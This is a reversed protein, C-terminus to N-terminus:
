PEGVGLLASGLNELVIERGRDDGLHSATVLTEELIERARRFDGQTLAAYGRNTAVALLTHEDGIERALDASREYSSAAAESDGGEAVVIGLDNLAVAEAQKDELERAISLREEVYRRMGDWDAESHACIFAAYLVKLRLRRDADESRALAHEALQRGETVLGTFEWFRFLSGVLRLECSPETSESFVQIATRLNDTEARLRRLRSEDVGGLPRPEVEEALAVFFEGHRQRTEEAEGREELREGAFERITALMWYRLGLESDRRRLLSKDLLSQLTDPDAGAAEEAAEYSCGGAFVSLSRFLRQEEPNLLDYSWEITARLTQQRPDSDRGGKLLDLRRSLREVLQQPSFLVTRAAALELALPLYDLRSCLESVEGNGTFGPTLARARALFLEVADREELTPVPYVQEGQLQLRERSTVFLLPGSIALLAALESAVEPLLHETNDLLLLVRKDTLAAMLTESLPAGPQERVELVQAVSTPVLSPDRLPALPVWFVGDPFHDSVEAAAQLALRTKGTGGPGTLTLLRLEPRALLEVVESLERERGLFSTAPVPLNTQYLSKLPPFDEEGLQYVREPASLDKFRHEGLDRLGGRDVLAATSASVLVQGGHGAAAIRAARHLEMGVYGTDALLIEGTHLGMRVSLPGSSLAAQATTAAALAASPRSFAVFFADGATDVEVGGHEVWAERCLRHHESLVHSYAEDGIEHLLKTSGEVDTFLFTVTGTPLNPPAM